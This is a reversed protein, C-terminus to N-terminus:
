PVSQEQLDTIESGDETMLAKHVDDRSFFSGLVWHYKLGTVNEPNAQIMLGTFSDKYCATSAWVTSVRLNGYKRYIRSVSPPSITLRVRRPAKGGLLNRNSMEAVSQILGMAMTRFSNPLLFDIVEDPILARGESKCLTTGWGVVSGRTGDNVRSDLYDHKMSQDM